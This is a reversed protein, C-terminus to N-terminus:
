DNEFMPPRLGFKKKPPHVQVPGPDLDEVMAPRTYVVTPLFVPVHFQMDDYLYCSRTIGDGTIGAFLAATDYTTSSSLFPKDSVYPVVCDHSEAIPGCPLVINAGALNRLRPYTANAGQNVISGRWFFFPFEMFPNTSLWTYFDMIGTSLGKRIKCFDYFNDIVADGFIGKHVFQRAPIIPTVSPVEAELDTTGVKQSSDNVQKSQKTVIVPIRPWYFELDPGATAFVLFQTDVAIGFPNTVISALSVSIHGASYPYNLSALADDACRKMPEAAQYPVVFDYVVDKDVFILASVANGTDASTFVPAGFAEEPHHIVRVSYTMGVPCFFHIRYRISGRWMAFHHAVFSLPTTRETIQLGNQSHQCFSPSVPIRALALDAAGNSPVTFSGLLSPLSLYNKFMGYDKGDSTPIKDIGAYERLGLTNVVSPADIATPAYFVEMTKTLKAVPPKNFPLSSAMEGVFSSADDLVTAFAKKLPKAVVSVAGLAATKAEEIVSSQKHSCLDEIDPPEDHFRSRDTDQLHDHRLHGCPCGGYFSRRCTKGCRFCYSFTPPTEDYDLSQKRATPGTLQVNIFRAQVTIELAPATVDAANKLASLVTFSTRGWNNRPANIRFWDYHKYPIVMVYKNLKQATFIAAGPDCFSNWTTTQTALNDMRTAVVLAGTCNHNGNAWMTLEVDAKMAHYSRYLDGAPNAVGAIDFLSSPWDINQITGISTDLWQFRAVVRPRSLLAALKHEELEYPSYAGDLVIPAPLESLSEPVDTASTLPGLSHVSSLKETEGVKSSDFHCPFPPARM